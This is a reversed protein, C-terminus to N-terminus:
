VVSKRDREAFIESTFGLSRLVAEAEFTHNGVADRGVITPIVQDIRRPRKM